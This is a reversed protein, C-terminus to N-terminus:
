PVRKKHSWWDLYQPSVPNNLNSLRTPISAKFMAKGYKM